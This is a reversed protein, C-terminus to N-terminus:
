SLKENLELIIKQMFEEYEQVGANDLEVVFADWVADFEGPAAMIARPLDRAQIDTMHTNIDQIDPFPNLDIQWAAYYPQNPPAPNFFEAPTKMNYKSLFEKDYDSMLDFYLEPQLGPDWSNGNDMTGEKKPANYFFQKAKNANVWVANEANSKQEDTRLFRGNEVYYDEGEIGWHFLIQWDDDLMREFMNVLREPYECNVSIGFGRNVNIIPQDLYQEKTSEDYVLPLGIYTDEFKKQANLSDTANQFNWYQDFMGLVRGSSLKALYQDFNQVLTDQDILGKHFVENLKQYYPKAYPKNHFVD